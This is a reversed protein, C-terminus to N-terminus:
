RQPYQLFVSTRLNRPRREGPPPSDNEVLLAQFSVIRDRERGTREPYRLIWEILAQHYNTLGPARIMYDSYFSKRELHTPISPGPFPVKPNAVENFPDVHRGDATVADISISMDSRPVDPAFMSWGQGLDLYAVARGVWAPTSIPLRNSLVSNEVVLQCVAILILMAVVLERLATRGARLPARFPAELSRAPPDPLPRADGPPPCAPLGLATSIRARNRALADYGADALGRIGPLALLGGLARGGPLQRAIEAIARGRRWQRGTARDIVTIAEGAKSAAVDGIGLEGASASPELRLRGARDLRALTRVVLFCAGCSADFLVLRSGPRRRWWRELANMDEALVLNPLFALMAPTFMELNLLCVFGLHLGVALLMALHRSTRQRFPSLLLLPLLAETVMTARTLVWSQWPMLWGRVWIGLWTVISYQHLVYHVATGDRWASGTKQIANLLYIAVLQALVAGVALSTVPRNDPAFAERDALEEPRHEIRASMRAGLSDISYRRGTPLFMTWLCLESLVVDGGNLIVPLRAHLSLVALFSAAHALRTRYGVLLLLYAAGCLAFVLGAEFSDSAMFFFSFLGSGPPRWLLTHNPLLGANTYFDRIVSARNVLDALLVGALTIRGLALSRPDATLYKRVVGEGLSV